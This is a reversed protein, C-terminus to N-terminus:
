NISDSYDFTGQLVQGNMITKSYPSAGTAVVHSVDGDDTDHSYKYFYEEQFFCQPRYSYTYFFSSDKITEWVCGRVRTTRVCSFSKTKDDSVSIQKLHAARFFISGTDSYFYRSNDNAPDIQLIAAGSNLKDDADIIKNDYSAGHIIIHKFNFNINKCDYTQGEKLYINGVGTIPIVDVAKQITKFPHSSDGTNNDDGNVADVYFKRNFQGLAGGVDDWVKKRFGAQNKITTTVKKGNEDIYEFPVDLPNPNYHLDYMKRFVNAANTNNDLVKQAIETINIGM